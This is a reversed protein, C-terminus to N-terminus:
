SVTPEAESRMRHISELLDALKEYTDAVCLLAFSGDEEATMRLAQAYNRCRVAARLERSMAISGGLNLASILKDETEPPFIAPAKTTLESEFKM